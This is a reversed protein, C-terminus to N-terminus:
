MTPQIVWTGGIQSLQLGASQMNELLVPITNTFMLRIVAGNGSLTSVDVGIVNPTALIRARIGNWESPSTFPVAVAMSQSRSSEKRVAAMAAQEASDKKYKEIMVSHFRQTALHASTEVTAEEATYIKDFTIRGLPSDGNLVAHIGGGEAPEAIAVLLTNAGYRRRLTELKLANGALADEPTISESDELDGLPVILPVLSQEARLDLWAQRWPNDEWLQSGEATRWVPLVIMPEAQSAPIKVGYQGLLKEVKAPLFRVTFKGIYRGPASSEQEISLSRLYPFIDEPKWEKLKEAIEPSGLREVLQFFAKVQVDRLAQDKAASADAATVDVDVGQVAFINTEIPGGAWAVGLGFGIIALAALLVRWNRCVAM